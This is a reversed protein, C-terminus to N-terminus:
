WCVQEGAGRGATREILVVVGGKVTVVRGFQGSGCNYYWREVKDRTVSGVIDRYTPVGCRSALDFVTAGVCVMDSGDATRCSMCDGAICASVTVLIIFVAIYIIKMIM